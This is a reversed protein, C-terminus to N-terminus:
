LIVQTFKLILTAIFYNFLTMKSQEIFDEERKMKTLDVSPNIGYLGTDSFVEIIQM